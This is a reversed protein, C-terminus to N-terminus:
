PIDKFVENSYGSENGATDLATVTFYYRAGSSLGILTYATVNGVSLGQGPSQLYTGPATGFYIRYGALNTAAVADWTLAAANSLSSESPPAEAGGGCAALLVPLALALVAAKFSRVIRM